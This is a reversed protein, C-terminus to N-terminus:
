RPEIANHQVCPSNREPRTPEQIQRCIATAFVAAAGDNDAERHIAM